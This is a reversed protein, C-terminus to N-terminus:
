PNLLIASVTLEDSTKFIVHRVYSMGAEYITDQDYTSDLYQAVDEDSLITGDPWYLISNSATITTSEEPRVDAESEEYLSAVFTEGAGEGDLQWRMLSPTGSEENESVHWEECEPDLCAQLAILYEAGPTLADLDLSVREHEGSEKRFWDSAPDTITLIFHNYTIEPRQWAVSITSSSGFEVDNIIQSRFFDTTFEPNWTGLAGSYIDKHFKGSTDVGTSSTWIFVGAIILIGLVILM